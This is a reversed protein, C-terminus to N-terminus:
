EEEVEKLFCIQHMELDKGGPFSDGISELLWKMLFPGKIGCRWSVILAKDINHEVLPHPRLPDLSDTRLLPDGNGGGGGPFIYEQIYPALKEFNKEVLPHTGLPCLALDHSNPRRKRKWRRWSVYRSSRM